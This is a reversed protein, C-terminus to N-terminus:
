PSPPHNPDGASKVCDARELWYESFLALDGFDVRTNADLDLASSRSNPDTSVASGWHSAMLAFDRFDVITDSNFDRSPVHTFSLTQIPGSPSAFSDYLDVRAVGTQRARYDVVFWDGPYAPHFGPVLYPTYDSRFELGIGRVNEFDRVSARTGAADFRSDQYTSYAPVGPPPPTLGRGTLLANQEYDWPLLLRGLWFAPADSSIILALRTGVMIDRYVTPHNPDVAALPTVEDCRYATVWVKAGLPAALAVVLIAVLRRM